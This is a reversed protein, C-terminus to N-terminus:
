VEEDPKGTVDDGKSALEYKIICIGNKFVLNEKTKTASIKFQEAPLPIKLEFKGFERIDKMNDNEDEPVKDRKKNGKITIITKDGEIAHNVVCETNGPAELRIELTKEDPQFYNYKPEFNGTKFLSFGLEDTFCKKLSLPENIILKINKKNLIEEEDTFQFKEINNIFITNSLINFNEKIYEFIDFKKPESILNYVGQIFNYTYKNYMEGAKSDENALILHFIELKKKDDYNM